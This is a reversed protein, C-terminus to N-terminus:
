RMMIIESKGDAGRLRGRLREHHQLFFFFVRLRDAELGGALTDLMQYKPIIFSRKRVRPWLAAHTKNVDSDRCNCDAALPVTDHKSTSGEVM